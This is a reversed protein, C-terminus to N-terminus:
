VGEVSNDQLFVKQRWGLYTTNIFLTRLPAGILSRKEVAFPAASVNCWTGRTEKRTVESNREPEYNKRQM